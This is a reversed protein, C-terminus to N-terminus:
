PEVWAGGSRVKLLSEQWVEAQKVKEPKVVWTGAVKVKSGGETPFALPVVTVAVEGSVGSFWAAPVVDVVAAVEGAVGTLRADTVRVKIAVVM